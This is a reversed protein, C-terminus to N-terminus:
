KKPPEVASGISQDEGTVRIRDGDALSERGGIILKDSPTLGQVEVLGGPLADGLQVPRLRAVGQERDAIWVRTGQETTQVLSRPVFVRLKSAADPNPEVSKPALFTVQVLMEPKVTAPPGEISVKVQLTNKQIDTLGTISIVEGDLPKGASPTEIRVRQGFQTKPVDDLRVDARVQLRQPDYLTVVTSAEPEGQTSQGMVRKGPQAVLALVVGNSPARVVTRDLALQAKDVMVHAQTQLAKAAAVKAEAEAVARKEDTKLELQRRLAHSRDAASKQERELRPQKAHLEDLAAQAADLESKARQRSRGSVADGADRKGDYDQQAILLKARAAEIQKPVAALEGEIRALMGEAEALDAELKIPNELSTKAAALTANASDLEAYRLECMAQGDALALEADRRILRAVEDGAKIQQGEIVSLKEIVGETLATVQVATPRPEIWGAAKFLPAGETQAASESFIVPAITVPKAPLLADKSAWVIVGLLGVVLGIPVVYRSWIRRPPALSREAPADRHVALRQLDVGTSMM